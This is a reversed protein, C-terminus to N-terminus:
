RARLQRLAMSGAALVLAAVAVGLLAARLSVAGAALGVLAPGFVFGLYALTVVTGTAAGYDAPAVHHRSLSILTPACVATGIGAVAIGAMAAAPVAALAAVASGAAATVAGATVLTAPSIRAALAHGSFRGVAAAGAFV